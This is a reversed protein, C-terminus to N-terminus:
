AVGHTDGRKNKLIAHLVLGILATTFLIAIIPLSSKTNAIGVWTSMLAGIGLQIAGLLASASGANKDFPALSLAAGNPNGIGTTMLLGCLMVMTGPLQHFGALRSFLLAAGFIVQVRLAWAFIDASSFRRLLFVNVQSGGIFSGAMCAFIVSFAKPSVHFEEMFIIPAGAVFTFLGAFSFAGALVYRKFTRNKFITVFTKVIKQPKLSITPDPKHGEPLFFFMATVIAAVICAMLVFIWRWGVYIVLLSGISPALLPSVGIFLFLLSFIKASQKAGFFDHVMTIAGVQAACGGLGQLLRLAILVHVNNTMSCGICSLIYLALGAYIPKKRGYRDLLPGYFFQGFALGIFYTSISLSVIASTTGLDDAMHTFASLYLDIAFPSVVSLAGLLCLILFGNHPKQKM